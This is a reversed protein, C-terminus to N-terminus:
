RDGTKWLLCLKDGFPFFTLEQQSFVNGKLIIIIYTVGGLLVGAVAEGAAFLRGSGLTEALLTYLQLVAVMMAAAKIVPYWYTKKPFRVHLKRRLMVYLFCSMAAYSLTTAAAAGATGFSPILLWNCVAKGAVAICVGAVATWEQGMGQLLASLTLALTTFFISAALIALSLSGLDNEFLMVNVPRILCILGLSAGLGIVTAIRLSLDTKERIFQGDERKKAGSILPVLALSFSTAVVTGLQILPQGRDYIGKWIKAQEFSEKGSEVLLPLVSFSDVLQTLTLVMNTVCIIFGEILLYSIIRKAEGSKWTIYIKGRNARRLWYATLLLLATLGGALSGFVAAAGADYVTRGGKIFLYSLLIITIVRVLQEGVQSVATPLMNNKGQFYGRLLAIFPFLLFSFSLLRVLPALEADGMWIAVQQAGIYLVSFLLLGFLCLFLLSALLVSAVGQQDRDAVREAVLKSIVIPYGYLALSMVIGYIPYVQQYIYFGVDGVINQYPVRYFASLLKTVFAAITLIVAGKWIKEEPSRM